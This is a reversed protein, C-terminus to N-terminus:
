NQAFNKEYEHKFQVIANAIGRAIAQQGAKSKLYRAERVNSIYGTEILVAPMSAGILVLFGAQSVGNDAVAAVSSVNDEILQAFQESYKVYASHAMTTLILNDADYAQYKKEYDNEYKIAANEQAAIRIAEDTKGPRLFYTELGNMANPKHPMSNCHISIFLKGGADDAIEGRKDLEVFEDDDRTMVVKVKPLKANIAKKLAKGIALTIDKEKVGGVGIAGPDKGGHGPDIVIVDLKWNKKEEELRNKLEESFIKEVDAQSYLAVSVTNSISDVYVQHSSYSHNLRFSLQMSRPNQIALLSSYVASAHLSDLKATDGTAPMLTVYLINNQGVAAEYAKPLHDMSVEILAGNAKEEARISMISPMDLPKASYTFRLKTEDYSLQGSLIRSFYQSVFNAPFYLKANASLVPLPLQYATSEGSSSIVIYNNNPTLLVSGSDSYISMKGSTTLAFSELGLGKCLDSVSIYTHNLDTFGPIYTLNSDISLTVLRPQGFAVPAVLLFVLFYFRQRM